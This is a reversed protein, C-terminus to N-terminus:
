MCSTKLCVRPRSWFGYRRRTTGLASIPDSSCHPAGDTSLKQLTLTAKPCCPMLSISQLWICGTLM